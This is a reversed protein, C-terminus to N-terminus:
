EGNIKGRRGVDVGVDGNKDWSVSLVNTAIFCYLVSMQMDRPRFNEKIVGYNVSLFVNVSSRDALIHKTAM